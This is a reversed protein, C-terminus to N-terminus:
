RVMGWLTGAPLPVDLAYRFLAFVVLSFGGAVFVVRRLGREHFAFATAGFLVASAAVFGLLDSLVANM